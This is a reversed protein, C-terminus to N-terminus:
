VMCILFVVIFFVVREMIRIRKANAIPHLFVLSTATVGAEVAVESLLTVSEFLENVLLPVACVVVSVTAIAFGVAAETVKEIALEPLSKVGVVYVLGTVAPCALTVIGILKSPVDVRVDSVM